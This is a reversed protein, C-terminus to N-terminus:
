EEPDEVEEIEPANDQIEVVNSVGGAYVGLGTRDGGYAKAVLRIALSGNQALDEPTFIGASYFSDEIAQGVKGSAFKSWPVNGDEDPQIEALKTYAPQFTRLVIESVKGAHLRLSEETKIGAAFLAAQLADGYKKSGTGSLANKWNIDTM